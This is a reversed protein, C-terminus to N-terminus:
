KVFKVLLAVWFLLVSIVCAGITRWFRYYSAEILAYIMYVGLAIIFSLEYYSRTFYSFLGTVLFLIGFLFMGITKVRIQKDTTNSPLEKHQKRALELGNKKMLYTINSITQLAGFTVFFARLIEHTWPM